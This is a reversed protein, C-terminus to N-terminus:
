KKEPTEETKEADERALAKATRRKKLVTLVIIAAFIAIGAGSVIFGVVYCDPMYRFEVTHEGATSEVAILSGLARTINVREGDIYCKWGEDYPITTLILEQGEPLNITGKISTNSHEEVKLEASHFYELAEFQANYDSYFFYFDSEESFYINTYDTKYDGVDYMKLEVTLNECKTFEGLSVIQASDYTCIFRGNVYIDCAKGFNDMPFHAYISGNTQAAFVFRITPREGTAEYNKYPVSLSQQEGNEDVYTCKQGFYKVVCDELAAYAYIPVYVDSYFDTDWLLGKTIKNLADGGTPFYPQSMTSLKELASLSVGYAIPLVQTNEMAYITSVPTVHDAHETASYAQEYYRSDLLEDKTIVYKIGLLADSFPTGGLYKTWHSQSAYGINNFLKIVNANLTSTSHSIGNFGFAMSENEGGKRRYVKSEMRYFSTDNELVEDVVHQIRNIAATYSTYDEKGKDDVFSGYKVMGVDRTVDGINI